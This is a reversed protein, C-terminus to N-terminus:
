KKSKKVMEQMWDTNLPTMWAKILGEPSYRELEAMMRKEIEAMAAKQLPALDPLGIFQRAEAPTCDTDIKIKM